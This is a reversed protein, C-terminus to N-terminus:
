SRDGERYFFPEGLMTKNQVYVSNFPIISIGTGVILILTVVVGVNNFTCEKNYLKVRKIHSKINQQIEPTVIEAEKYGHDNVAHEAAKKL